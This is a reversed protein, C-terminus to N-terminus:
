ASFDDDTDDGKAYMGDAKPEGRTLKAKFIKRPSWNKKRAEASLETDVLEVRLHCGVFDSEKIRAERVANRIATHIGGRAWVSRVGDDDPIEKVHVRKGKNDTEWKGSAGADVEWVGIEVPDGNPWTKVEGSDMDTDKKIEFSLVEGEIVDGVNEFQASLAGGDYMGM